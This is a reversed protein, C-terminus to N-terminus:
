PAGAVSVRELVSVPSSVTLILIICGCAVLLVSVAACNRTDRKCLIGQAATYVVVGCGAARRLGVHM